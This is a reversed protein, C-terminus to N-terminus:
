KIGRIKRVLVTGLVFYATALLFVVAYANAAGSSAKITDLLAGSVPTALLQPLVLACHWVGIDKAAESKDPLVDIAMALDVAGFAGFGAGFVTALVCALPFSRVFLFVVCILAMVGGSVYVFIKRRGGWKDSLKGNVFASLLAALLLPIFLISVETSASMGDVPILDKVFYQLFEQVSYIGMNILLRTLFVWRFDHHDILPRLFNGVFRRVAAASGCTERCCGSGGGGDGGKAGGGGISPKEHTFLVTPVMCVVHLAALVACTGGFGLSEAALGLASGIVNGLASLCGLTGSALGLQAAPVTDPLLGMFAASGANSAVQLGMWVLVFSSLSTCSSLVLLMAATGFTGCVVLPRRRGFRTELNDSLLGFLPPAIVSIFGGCLLVIGLGTGKREEGVLVLVQKPVSVVLLNTWLCSWGINYCCLIFIARLSKTPAHQGSKSSGAGDTLLAAGGGDGSSLSLPSDLGEDPQQAGGADDDRVVLEFSGGSMAIFRHFIGTTTDGGSLVCRM